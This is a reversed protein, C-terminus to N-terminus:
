ERGLIAESRPTLAKVFGQYTRGVRKRRPLAADLLALVAEFRQALTPAPDWSMLTAALALSLASWGKGIALPALLPSVVRVLAHRYVTHSADGGGVSARFMTAEKSQNSILVVVM